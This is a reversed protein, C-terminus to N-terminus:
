PRGSARSNVIYHKGKAACDAKLDNVWARTVRYSSGELAARDKVVDRRLDINRRSQILAERASTPDTAGEWLSIRKAESWLVWARRSSDPSEYGIICFHHRVATPASRQRVMLQLAPLPDGFHAASETAFVADQKDQAFAAGATLM